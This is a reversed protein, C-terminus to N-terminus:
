GHGAEKNGAEDTVQQGSSPLQQAAGTPRDSRQSNQAASQRLLSKVSPLIRRVIEAVGQRNPHIGDAQNLAPDAAVGALFFPYFLFNPDQREKAIRLFVDDFERTYDAGLNRPAMMGALLVPLQRAALGDLIASINKYTQVPSLGRLGDNGGLVILVADPEDTLSWELRARAAATTDGSNGGNIVTVAHAPKTAPDAQPAAQLDAQPDAQPDAPSAALAAALQDPFAQGLPLGYGHVLSDGFALLRFPEAARATLDPLTSLLLLIIGLGLRAPLGKFCSGSFLLPM